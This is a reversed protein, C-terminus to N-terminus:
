MSQWDEVIVESEITEEVYEERERQARELRGIQEKLKRIESQASAGAAVKATLAAIIAKDAERAKAMVSVAATLREIKLRGEILKTKLKARYRRTRDTQTSNAM